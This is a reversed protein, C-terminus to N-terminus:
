TGGALAPPKGTVEVPNRPGADVTGVIPTGVFAWNRIARHRINRAGVVDAPAAHGCQRCEFHDRSRRNNKACYGCEPCTRSTNRPDVPIVPIGALAAKYTLFVRLQFFAWGKMRSRQPKCVPTREGIGALDEVAIAKATDKAKEVIAKSICHNADKRFLSEKKRVRALKRKASKTGTRQCTKRIRHYKRRVKEVDDGSFNEGDDTTALNNVGLDVGIFDTTPVPADEPVDVTVLLFWRGDKRLMLDCQGKSWGFREEQYKGMVFPVIVRGDLTSISVRDPGKFGINKGLTFPVAAHERFTPRIEKDRRYAECVQSICRIATDAPLGFRERLEKYVIRQLTFKNALRREFAVGAVWNAAENFREVTAKLKAAKPEDPLLQTQLTLNM